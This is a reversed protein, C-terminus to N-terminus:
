PRFEQIADGGFLFDRPNEELRRTVRNLNNLTARLEELAPALLESGAASNELTIELASANTNILTNLRQSAQNLSDAAHTSSVVLDNGEEKLLRNAEQSLTRLQELTERAEQTLATFERMSLEFQQQQSALGGSISEVNAIIQSIRETSEQEFLRNLNSLLQSVNGVIAEGDSLLSDLPSPEALIQPPNGDSSTLLPSEPTGGYLQLTMSGTINALGLRARTDQKISVSSEVRILALVQRPDNPNLRMNVVNGVDIGSYEVRSGENLGSVARNFVVEIHQYERELSAKTMWLSFLMAGTLTLLTFLGIVVHHARTEM